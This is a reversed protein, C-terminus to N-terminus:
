NEVSTTELIAFSSVRSVSNAALLCELPSCFLGAKFDLRKL